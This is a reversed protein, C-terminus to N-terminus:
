LSQSIPGQDHMFLLLKSSYIFLCLFLKLFETLIGLFKSFLKVVTDCSFIKALRSIKELEQLTKLHQLVKKNIEKKNTQLKWSM